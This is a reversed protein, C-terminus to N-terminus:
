SCMYLEISLFAVTVSFWQSEDPTSSIARCGVQYLLVTICVSAGVSLVPHGGARWHVGVFVGSWYFTSAVGHM